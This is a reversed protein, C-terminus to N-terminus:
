AAKKDPLQWAAEGDIKVKQLGMEGSVRRLTRASAISRREALSNLEKITKPGHALQQELFEISEKSADAPRGVDRKPGAAVDYATADSEGCWMFKPMEGIRANGGTLAFTQTKAKKALNMKVHAVAMLNPDDPDEGVLIISRAYASFGISGLGRAIPDNAKSKTLHRVALMSCGTTKCIEGLKGLIDRVENDRYIDVGGGLFNNLPDLTVFKIEHEEIERQLAALTADDLRFDKRAYRVNALDAGMSRLRPRVTYSADDEPDLVLVNCPRIEREGPLSGGKSLEAAIKMTLFSKGKEPMGEVFNVAGKVIWPYWLFEPKTEIVDELSGFLEDGEIGYRIMGQAIGAVEDEDLPPDCSRRNIEQLVADIMAPEFGQRRLSGAIRTLGDNRSGSSLLTGDTDSARTAKRGAKSVIERAKQPLPIAENLERVWRYRAGSVHRSPPAVLYGNDGKLDFGPRSRIKTPAKEALFWHHRGKGTRVEATHPLNDEERLALGAPGDYDFVCYGLPVVGLNADPNDRIWNKIKRKNTTADLYGNPALEAIPHKGPSCKPLGGCTCKGDVIGHLLLVPRGHRAHKLAEALLLRRHSLDIRLRRLTKAM